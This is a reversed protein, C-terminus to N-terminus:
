SYEFDPAKNNSIVTGLLNRFSHSYLWLAELFRPPGGKRPSPLLSSLKLSMAFIMRNYEGFLAM